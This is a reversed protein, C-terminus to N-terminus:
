MAGADLRKAPRIFTDDVHSAGSNLAMLEPADLGVMSHATNAARAALKVIHRPHACRAHQPGRYGERYVRRTCDLADEAIALSETEALTASVLAVAILAVRRM